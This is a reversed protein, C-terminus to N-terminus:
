HLSGKNIQEVAELARGIIENVQKMGNAQILHVAGAIQFTLDGEADRVIGIVILFARVDTPLDVLEQMAAHVAPLWEDPIDVPATPSIMAGYIHNLEEGTM